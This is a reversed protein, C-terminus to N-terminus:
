IARRTAKSKRMDNVFQYLLKNIKLDQDINKIPRTTTRKTTKIGGRILNEQVINFTTYLDIGKDYSRKPVLLNKPEILEGDKESNYKTSIAFEALEIRENNTLAISKMEQINSMIEKKDEIIKYSVDYVNQHINGQHRVSYSQQNTFAILGNSCVKRYVGSSMQYASKGDHSNVLVIEHTDEKQNNLEDRHRLKVLHKTFCKKTEDSTNSQNCAVPFFGQEKLNDLINFTSVYTYNDSRSEHKKTAFISPCSIFMEETTIGMPNLVNNDIMKTAM